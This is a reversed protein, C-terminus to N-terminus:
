GLNIIPRGEGGLRKAFASLRDIFNIIIQKINVSPHLQGTASLLQDLTRLHFEDQFVQVLAEMLYEQAIVDRCQVIQELLKPLVSQKYLKLDL